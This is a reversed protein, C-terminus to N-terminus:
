PISRQRTAPLPQKGGLRCRAVLEQLFGRAHRRHILVRRPRHGRTIAPGCSVQLCIGVQMDYILLVLRHPGCAEELSTAFDPSWTDIKDDVGAVSASARRGRCWRARLCLKLRGALSTSGYPRYQPSPVSKRKPDLAATTSIRHPCTASPRIARRRPDGRCPGSGKRRM